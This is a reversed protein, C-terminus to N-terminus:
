WGEMQQMFPPPLKRTSFLTPLMPQAERNMLREDTAHAEQLQVFTRAAMARCLRM